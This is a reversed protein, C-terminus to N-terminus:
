RTEIDFCIEILDGIRCSFYECLKELTDFQIGTSKDYYLNTLTTRSIGTEASIKNINRCKRKAMFEALKIKIM